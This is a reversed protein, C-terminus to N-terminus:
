GGLEEPRVPAEAGDAPIFSKGHALKHVVEFVDTPMALVVTNSPSSGLSDLTQLTRLQMAGPSAFMTRAADALNLAALKDGEAKTITARKEREASAQRSMMRKLEEPMDIDQLRLAEVSLGWAASQKEIATEIEKQIQDREALLEDLTLRGIVDRLAAMSYNLIGFKYDQVSTLAVRVDNIKFYLVGNVSVPVNDRTIVRQRPIELTQVRTDVIELHDIVPFIMILGPERVAMLKGLRLQVGREWQAAIHIMRVIIVGLVLGLVGAPIAAIPHILYGLGTVGFLVVMFAIFRPGGALSLGSGQPPPMVVGSTGGGENTMAKAAAAQAMQTLLADNM